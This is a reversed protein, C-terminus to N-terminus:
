EAVKRLGTDVVAIHTDVWGMVRDHMARVFEDTVGDRELQIRLAKFEEQFRAHDEKNRPCNACQTREMLLEEAGFHEQIYDEVFHVLECARSKNGPGGDLVENLANLRAILQRHQEDIEPFGTGHKEEEWILAM